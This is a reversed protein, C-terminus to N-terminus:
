AWKGKAIEAFTDSISDESWRRLETGKRWQTQKEKTYKSYDLYMMGYRLADCGHEVGDPRPEEKSRQGPKIERYEYSPIEDVLCVPQHASRLDPDIKDLSGRVIFLANRDFRERVVDAGTSFANIAKTACNRGNNQYLRHNFLDIDDPRSPDCVITRLEYRTQMKAAKAAWWEINKGTRYIEHVLYANRKEDVGFILLCGPDKWGWDMAGFFWRCCVDGENDLPVKDICHVTPNFNPWIAGEAAVWLGLFLRDRRVGTLNDLRELEDPTITPNDEHRSLIRTTRPRSKGPPIDMCRQNLWHNPADPNCDGILQGLFIQDGNEYRNDFPRFKGSDFDARLKVIDVVRHQYKGTGVTVMYEEPHRSAPHPIMRNRLARHLREWEDETLETAEQVYIIDYEASFLRTPNDMGHLAIRSGNDYQYAFRSSPSIPNIRFPSDPLLVKPEFTSLMFSESLSARTKRLVAIRCGAFREARSNIYEGIVRSKGTNAPGDLLIEPDHCQLLKAAGGYARYHVPTLDKPIAIM